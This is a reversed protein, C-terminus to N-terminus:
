IEFTLVENEADALLISLELTAAEQLKQIVNSNRIEFEFDQSNIFTISANTKDNGAEFMKLDNAKEKLLNYRKSLSEFQAIRGIREDATPATPKFKEIAAAAAAKQENVTTEEKKGAVLLKVEEAKKIPAIQKTM